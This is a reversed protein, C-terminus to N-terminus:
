IPLNSLCLFQQTVKWLDLSLMAVEFILVRATLRKARVPQTPAGAFSQALERSEAAYRKGV